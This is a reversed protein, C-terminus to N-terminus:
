YGWHKTKLKTVMEKAMGFAKMARQNSYDTLFKRALEPDEQWLELATDEIAKQMEFQEQEFADWEQRAMAANAEYDLDILNELANFINFAQEPDFDFFDKPPNFHFAVDLAQELPINPYYNGPTQYIGSYWPILVSGCPAATTRWAVSGIATPMHNRLQYIVLEQATSSCIAGVGPEHHPSANEPMGLQYSKGPVPAQGEIHGHSSLINALDQIDFKRETHIAFPLQKDVPLEILENHVLSHSFWQRPDIGHEDMFSGEWPQRNFADRFSFEAGSAPDYWGREIAYEVLGESAMVNDKDNLDAEPGIIHVNPLLVIADDPVRMAIWHKGRVVSLLWGENADAIVYTRGSAAYGFYDLLETAIEVGERATTARQAVIRRLKYGIGGDTIDGRAVLDDYSDERTACADSAIAVGWENFYGDSFESGTNGTWLYAWSVNSQPWTGGRKLNVLSGPKHDMRPVYRYGMKSINSNQELHAFLVSGDTTADKGAVVAFCGYAQSTNAIIFVALLIKVPLLFRNRM